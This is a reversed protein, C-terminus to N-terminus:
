RVTAMPEYAERHGRGALPRFSPKRVHVPELQPTAVAVVSVGLPFGVRQEVARYWFDVTSSWWRRDEPGVHLEGRAHGNRLASPVGALNWHRVKLSRFSAEELADRLSRPDYRRVGVGEASRAGRAWPRAPVRVVLRGGPQLVRHLKELVAVDNPLRELVDLCVANSFSRSALGLEERAPNRETVRLTAGRRRAAADLAALREPCWEVVTVEHCTAAELAVESGGLVLVPGPGLQSCLFRPLNRAGSRTEGCPPTALTQPDFRM